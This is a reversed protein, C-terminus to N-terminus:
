ITFVGNAHILISLDNGDTVTINAPTNDLLTSCLIPDAVPSAVTDDYIAAFRTVISGGAATWVVDACDFTVVGAAEVWTPSVIAKTNQTYGFATAVQNTASAIGNISVAINSTSLYLNIKFSDADLDITADGMYEKAKNHVSWANAAM